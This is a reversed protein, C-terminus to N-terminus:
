IKVLQLISTVIVFTSDGKLPNVIDILAFLISEHLNITMHLFILAEEQSFIYVDNEQKLIKETCFVQTDQKKTGLFKTKM